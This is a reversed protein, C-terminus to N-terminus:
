EERERVIEVTGILGDDTIRLAATLEQLQGLLQSLAAEDDVSLPQRANRRNGYLTSYVQDTEPDYKYEGGGPCFYTVGYKADALANVQDIPVDYLQILNYIPMINRHAAERLKESWYLQMDDHLKEMAKFNVRMLAHAKIPQVARPAAAADIAQRLADLETAALLQGNVLSVHLRVKLAYIQYSLVHIRHGKYDPLRYADFQAPLGFVRSEKLVIQSGLQDLLRAAKDQDEVEVGLYIPLNTAALAAAMGLQPMVDISGFLDLSQLRTPDIELIMRDDLFHISVRDGLWSLDTLTPDERLVESVGPIERVFAGMQKRGPALLLSFVASRAIDGTSLELARDGVNHRLASYLSGNAFPLVLTELRVREDSEQKVRVAVPDFWQRWFKRYRQKYREYQQQEQSSVQLVDLEVIPTLYKIRNYVSSTATDHEADWAYAGGTPDVIQGPDYFKGQVLNNLSKPSRGYELRYFMSANNLMVLNNLAQLRRKQAIKFRPGVLHRLFADSGYLYGARAQESPPLIMSVYRYDLADYLSPSEGLQTDIVKRMVVPSNSFVAVDDHYLVFSSVLRDSTYRVTIRQGRYNVERQIVGPHKEKVDSAWQEAAQRFVEPQKLRVILTIDTGQALLFDSGTIALESIVEDDFLRALATRRVCLQDEYKERLHHDRASVTFMRLLSEGWRESFDMLENATEMTNFYLLYQDEPVYRALEHRKPEAGEKRKKEILTKYNLSQIQPPQLRSIHTTLDGQVNEGRLAELQLSQQLALGGSFTHYLGIETKEESHRAAKPIPPPDVGYRVKSQLIVYKLFSTEPYYRLLEAFYMNQQRAWDKYISEIGTPDTPIPIEIQTTRTDVDPKGALDETVVEYSLELKASGEGRLRGYFEAHKREFQTEKPYILWANEDLSDLRLKNSKEFEEALFPQELRLTFAMVEGEEARYTEVETQFPLVEGGAVTPLLFFITLSVTCPFQFKM